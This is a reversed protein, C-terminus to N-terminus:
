VGRGAFFQEILSDYANQEVAAIFTDSGVDVDVDVYDDDEEIEELDSATLTMVPDVIEDTNPFYQQKILSLQIADESPMNSGAIAEDFVFVQESPQKFYDAAKQNLDSSSTGSKAAVRNKADILTTHSKLASDFQESTSRTDDSAKQQISDTHTRRHVSM